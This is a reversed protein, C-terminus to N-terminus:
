HGRRTAVVSALLALLLTGAQQTDADDVATAFHLLELRLQHRGVSSGRLGSSVSTGTGVLALAEMGCRMRRRSNSTPTNGEEIEGERGGERRGESGRM